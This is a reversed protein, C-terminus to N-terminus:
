KEDFAEELRQKRVTEVYVKGLTLNLNRDLITKGDSDMWPTDGSYGDPNMSYFTKGEYILKTIGDREVITPPPMEIKTGTPINALSMVALTLLFSVASGVGVGIFLYSRGKLKAM